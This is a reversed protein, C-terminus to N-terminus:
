FPPLVINKSYKRPIRLNVGVNSYKTDGKLIDVVM